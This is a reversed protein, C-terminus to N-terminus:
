KSSDLTQTHGAVPVVVWTISPPFQTAHKLGQAVHEPSLVVQSLQSALKTKETPVHVQGAVPYPSFPTFQSCHLM